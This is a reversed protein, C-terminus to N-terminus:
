AQNKHKLLFQKVLRNFLQPKQAHLWHGAQRMIKAQANPFQSLISEQYKPLIYDSEDGKIFLTAGTYPANSAQWNLIADYNERIAPLNMRWAMKAQSFSMSKLLFQRVGEDSIHQQMLTDAAQRSTPRQADVLNLAAFVNHHHASYNVPAIDAVVLSDVREPADLAIRMAIKGGMSHGIFTASSIAQADMLAIVDNAMSAYDMHPHHSSRGHNRVDLQIVQWHDEEILTRALMGLNNMDGFLGHIIIVTPGTGQSKFNLQAM